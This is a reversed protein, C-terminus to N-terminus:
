HIFNRWLSNSNEMNLFKGFRYIEDSVQTALERTPVIVLAEVSGNLQLQQLIPLGFAVTKGTGTHAQAM